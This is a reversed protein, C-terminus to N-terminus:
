YRQDDHRLAQVWGLSSLASRRGCRAQMCHIATSAPVTAPDNSALITRSSRVLDDLRGANAAWWAELGALMGQLRRRQLLTILAKGDATPRITVQIPHLLQQQYTMAFTQTLQQRPGCKSPQAHIRVQEPTISPPIGGSADLLRYAPEVSQLM